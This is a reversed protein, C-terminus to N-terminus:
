SGSGLLADKVSDKIEDFRRHLEEWGDDWGLETVLAVLLWIIGVYVAVALLGFGSAALCVLGDEETLGLALLFVVMAPLTNTFPLPIVMLLGMVLILLSFLVRGWRSTLWSLRPKVLHEFRTFFAKFVALMKDALGKPIQVKGAWAPLWISKRGAMLQLGLLAIIVGMPTSIVTAPLPLASPLALVLLFLGFGQEGVESLINKLQLGEPTEPRLAIELRESLKRHEEEM